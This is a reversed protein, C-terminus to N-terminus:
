RDTTPKKYEEAAPCLDKDMNSAELIPQDFHDDVHIDNCTENDTQVSREETAAKRRKKPNQYNESSVEVRSLTVSGIFNRITLFM